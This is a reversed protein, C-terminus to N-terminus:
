RLNSVSAIEYCSLFARQRASAVNSDFGGQRNQCKSERGSKERVSDLESVTM